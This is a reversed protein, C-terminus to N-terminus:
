LNTTRLQLCTGGLPCKAIVPSMKPQNLQYLTPTPIPVSSNSRTCHLGPFSFSPFLMQEVICMAAGVERVIFERAWRWSSSHPGARTLYLISPQTTHTIQHKIFPFFGSNSGQAPEKRRGDGSLWGKEGPKWM